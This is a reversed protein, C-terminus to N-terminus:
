YLESVTSAHVSANSLILWSLGQRRQAEPTRVCCCSAPSSVLVTGPHVDATEYVNANVSTLLEKSTERLACAVRHETVVVGVARAAGAAGLLSEM